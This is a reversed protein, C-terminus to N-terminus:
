ACWRARIGRALAEFVAVFALQVLAFVCIAAFAVVNMNAALSGLVFVVSLCVLSVQVVRTGLIAANALPATDSM